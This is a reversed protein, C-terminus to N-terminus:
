MGEDYLHQEVYAARRNHMHALMACSLPALAAALLPLKLLIAATLLGADATICLVALGRHDRNWKHEWFEKREKLLFPSLCLAKTVAEEAKAPLDKQTIREGLVLENMSVQYLESLALLMDVPPLYAGTEWRSVTKGTVGLIAGLQEQTLRRDRRLSQLFQGTKNQEM